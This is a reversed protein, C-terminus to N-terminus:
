KRRPEDFCPMLAKAAEIRLALPVADNNMVDLSFPRPELWPGAPASPRSMQGVGTVPKEAIGAEAQSEIAGKAPGLRELARQLDDPQISKLQSLLAAQGNPNPPM